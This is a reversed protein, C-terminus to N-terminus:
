RGSPDRLRAALNTAGPTAPDIALAAALQMSAENRNGSEILCSAFALHITASEPSAVTAQELWHLATKLDGRAMAIFGINAMALGHNPQLHLAQELAAVADDLYGAERLVQGFDSYYDPRPSLSVARRYSAISADLQGLRQQTYGLNKHYSADEPALESARRLHATAENFRGLRTLAVGLNSRAAAYEPWLKVTHQLTRLAEDLLNQKIYSAGLNNFADRFDPKLKLASQFHIDAESFNQEALLIKGLNNHALWSKPNRRLTDSWIVKESQYVAAQQQTKHVFFGILACVAALKVSNPIPLRLGLQVVLYIPALIALYQWHDAVDSFRMFYIGYIGIVPALALGYYCVAAPVAWGWRHRGWWAVLPLAVAALSPLYTRPSASDLDLKPYIFAIESPWIAQRLYFWFNWGARALRLSLPGLDLTEGLPLATDPAYWSAAAIGSIIAAAFFPAVTFTTSRWSRFTVFAATTLMIPSFIAASKTLLAAIFLLLSLAYPLYIRAYSATVEVSLQKQRKDHNAHPIRELYALFALWSGLCFTTSALTKFQVIWAVAETNVPHVCFLLACFLAGPTKLRRLIAAILTTNLAHLIINILHYPFTWTGWWRYAYWFWTYHLPWFDPAQHSFWIRAVTSFPSSILPYNFLAENDDWIPAGNLAPVYMWWSLSVAGAFLALWFGLSRLKPNM